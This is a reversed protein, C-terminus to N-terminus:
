NWVDDVYQTPYGWGIHEIAVALPEPNSYVTDGSVISLLINVNAFQFSSFIIQNTSGELNILMENKLRIIYEKELRDDKRNENWNNISLAILIGFVVLM